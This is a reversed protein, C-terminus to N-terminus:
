KRISPRRRLITQATKKMGNTSPTIPSYESREFPRCIKTNGKQISSFPSSNKLYEINKKGFNDSFFKKSNNKM